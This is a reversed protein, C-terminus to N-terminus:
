KKRAKFSIAELNFNDEIRGNIKYFKPRKSHVSGVRYIYYQKGYKNSAEIENMSIEFPENISKNTGKVEIYIEIYKGEKKEFSRVDYGAGDGIEKSVWLVKEALDERGEKILKERELDYIMKECYTGLKEKLDNIKSYDIKVIKAQSKPNSKDIKKALVEKFDVELLNDIHEENGEADYCNKDIEDLNNCCIFKEIDLKVINIDYFVAKGNINAIEILNLEEISRYKLNELLTRGKRNIKYKLYDVEEIFGNQKLMELCFYARFNIDKATRAKELEIGDRKGNLLKWFEKLLYKEGDMMYELIDYTHKEFNFLGLRKLVFYINEKYIKVSESILEQMHNYWISDITKFGYKLRM